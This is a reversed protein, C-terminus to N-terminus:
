TSVVSLPRVIRPYTKLLSTVDPVFSQNRTRLALPFDPQTFECNTATSGYDALAETGRHRRIGVAIANGYLTAGHPKAAGGRSSVPPTPLTSEQRRRRTLGTTEPARTESMASRDIGHGRLQRYPSRPAASEAVASRDIFYGHTARPRTCRARAHGASGGVVLRRGRLPRMKLGLSLTRRLCCRARRTTCRVGRRQVHAPPAAIYRRVAPLESRGVSFGGYGDQWSFDRTVADQRKLWSISGKKVERVLNSTAMSRQGM